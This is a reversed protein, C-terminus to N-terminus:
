KKFMGELVGLGLLSASLSGLWTLADTDIGAMVAVIFCTYGIVGAVRKSSIVGDASLLSKLFNKM